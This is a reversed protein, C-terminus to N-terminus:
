LGLERRRGEVADVIGRKVVKHSSNKPWDDLGLDRLLLAGGLAFDRGLVKVVCEEMQRTIDETSSSNDVHSGKMVAVPKTGYAADPLGIVQVEDHFERELCDEVVSPVICIGRSKILDKSRGVVFVVGTEDMYALDGTQFWRKGAEHQDQLFAKDTHEDSLYRDVLSNSHVQLEGIEGRPVITNSGSECIRIDTGLLARGVGPINGNAAVPPQEQQEDVWGFAPAGESMGWHFVLRRTRLKKKGEAIVDAPCTDGSCTVFRLTTPQYTGLAPSSCLSRVVTPLIMLHTIRQEVIARLAVDDSFFTSAMVVCGGGVWANLCGLYCVPRYCMSTALFRATHDWQSGHFAHYGTIEGTINRISLPCGKPFGTTGSTFLIYATSDPNGPRSPPSSSSSPNQLKHLREWNPPHNQDNADHAVLKLRPASTSDQHQHQEFKEAAPGDKLVVVKPDLSQMLYQLEEARGVATPDIPSFAAGLRFCTWLLLAWEVSNDVFVAVVDGPQVGAEVFCAAVYEVAEILQRYSWSFYGATSASRSKVFNALLDSPQHLAVLAESDPRKAGESSLWEWLNSPTAPPPGGSFYSLQKTSQM